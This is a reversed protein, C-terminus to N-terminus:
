TNWSGPLAWALRQGRLGAHLAFAHLGDYSLWFGVRDCRGFRGGDRGRDRDSDATRIGQHLRDHGPRRDTSWTPCCAVKARLKANEDRQRTLEAHDLSDDCVVQGQVVRPAAASATASPLWALARRHLRFHKCAVIPPAPV